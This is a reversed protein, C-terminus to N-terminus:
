KVIFYTVARDLLFAHSKIVIKAILDGKRRGEKKLLSSFLPLSYGFDHDFNMGKQDILQEGQSFIYERLIESNIIFSVSILFYKSCQSLCSHLYVGFLDKVVLELFPFIYIKANSKKSFYSLYTALALLENTHLSTKAKLYTNITKRERFM